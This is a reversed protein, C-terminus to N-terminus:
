DANARKLLDEWFPRAGDIEALVAKNDAFEKAAEELWQLFFEVSARSVRPQYNAEVYYPGTTAFQYVHPNDTVARVLFWGSADFEVKPLRGARNALEDLRVTHLSRGNQVIELYDVRTAEYFALELAIEFERREGAALQFVHGPLEGAVKARLLPGNTVIVQGHRLGRLWSERSFEEGCHVYTRNLGLPSTIARGATKKGGSSVAPGYSAGAGSGAAPPLRLGCNLLHHYITEGYRGNGLQGPFLARDRPRGDTERDVVSNQQSHRNIICVADLKGAAAWIPLDWAFPTLAAVLGGKERGLMASALSPDDAKWRCVDVPSEAGIVLLGGGRRLDLEAWAGHLRDAATPAGGDTPQHKLKLCRGHDNVAAALPVFDVGRAQMALPLGDPPLQVDLDVARWGEARMDVRRTLRAEVSDEAHRDITFQGTRTLYEPGAELLFTYAGRRLELVVEGDFYISDGAVVAGAPRLRVPNGRADRLELRVALPDGSQHDLAAITLRGDPTAAVAASTLMAGAVAAAIRAIRLRCPAIPAAVVM